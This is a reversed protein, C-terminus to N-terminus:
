SGGKLSQCTKYIAVHVCMWSTCFRLKSKGDKVKSILFEVANGVFLWESFSKAVQSMQESFFVGVKGLGSVSNETKEVGESVESLQMKGIQSNLDNLNTELDKIENKIVTEQCESKQYYSYLRCYLLM